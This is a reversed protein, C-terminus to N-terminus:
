KIIDYGQDEIETEMTQLNVAETHEVTVTKDELRVEVKEVGNLATLANTVAAVCHSCSMGDVKLVTQM